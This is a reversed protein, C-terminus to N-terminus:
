RLSIPTAFSERLSAQQPRKRCGTVRARPRNWGRQTQDPQTQDTQTQDRNDPTPHGREVGDLGLPLRDDFPKSTDDCDLLRPQVELQGIADVFLDEDGRGADQFLFEAKAGGDLAIGITAGIALRRFVAVFRQHQGAIQFDDIDLPDHLVANFVRVFVQVPDLHDVLRDAIDRFRDRRITPL